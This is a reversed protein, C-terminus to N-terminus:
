LLSYKLFHYNNEIKICNGNHTVIGLQKLQKIYYSVLFKSLGTEEAINKQSYAQNKTNVSQLISKVNQNRIVALGTKETTTFQAQYSFFHKCRGLYLSEIDTSDFRNIHYQIVGLAFGTKRQIQRLTIGPTQVIVEHIVNKKTANESIINRSCLKSQSIRGLLIIQINSIKELSFLKETQINEILHSNRTQELSIPSESLSGSSSITSSDNFPVNLSLSLVHFVSLLTLGVLVFGFLTYKTKKTIISHV